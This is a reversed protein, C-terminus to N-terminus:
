IQLDTNLSKIFGVCHTICRGSQFHFLDEKDLNDEISLVTSPALYNWLSLQASIIDYLVYNFNSIFLSNNPIEKLLIQSLAKYFDYKIFKNSISGLITINSGAAFFILAGIIQYISFKQYNEFFWPFYADFVKTSNSSTLLFSLVNLNLEIM